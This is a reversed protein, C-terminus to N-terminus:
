LAAKRALVGNILECMADLKTQWDDLAAVQRRRALTAPDRPLLLAQELADLFPEPHPPATLLVGHRENLRCVLPLDVAVVPRGAALYENIKTPLVTDAYPSHRYPVIGVDFQRLYHVLDYHPRPGLLHVNPRAALEGLAAMQPGVFVWSWRPRARALYDLLGLDVHGGLAGVYGVVPRPLARLGCAAAPAGDAVTEAPFADLNVGYSFVHTKHVQDAFTSALEPCQVFVLDSLAVLADENRRLQDLHPTLQTFDAVCYYIVAGRPGRLSEVLQVATDTPLFTWLVPDRLGLRRAARVVAPLFWWRNLRGRWQPGFPPLVLPSHVFLNPAVQRLGGGRRLRAVVRDADRLAPSRVGTNEVYLVRNGAGALRRCIEHPGQWLFGWDLSSLCIIDRGTLM